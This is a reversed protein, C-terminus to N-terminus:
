PVERKYSYHTESGNRDRSVPVPSGRMHAEQGLRSFSAMSTKVLALAPMLQQHPRNASMGGEQSGAQGLSASSSLM